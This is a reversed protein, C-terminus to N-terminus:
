EAELFGSSSMLRIWVFLDLWFLCDCVFSTSYSVAGLWYRIIVYFDVGM